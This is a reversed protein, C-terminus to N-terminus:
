DTLDMLFGYRGNNKSKTFEIIQVDSYDISPIENEIVIIQLDNQCKKLMKFLQTRMPSSVTESSQVKEKLSLIPSDVILFPLSYKGRNKLYLIIGLSNLTNLYARYGKGFSDKPQGNVIVDMTRKDFIATQFDEFGCQTLTDPWYINEFEIMNDPIHDKVKFFVNSDEENIIQSVKAVMQEAQNDLVSIETSIRIATQYKDLQEKLKDACPKLEQNILTEANKYDLMSEELHTELSTIESDISVMTDSLDKLQLNVRKYESQASLIYDTSDKVTVSSSCFPCNRTQPGPDNISSDVIFNLRELDSTYQSKLNQYRKKMITCEALQENLKSIKGLLAQNNQISTTIREQITALEQAIQDIETNFSTTASDKSGQKLEAQRKHILEIEEWIYSEIAERKAKAISLSENSSLGQFDEGTALYTLASITPTEATKQEPMLVSAKRIVREETILAVHLINRWSLKQTKFEQSSIITPATNMGLLKLFLSNLTRKGSSSYRGSEINPINTNVDVGTGKLKRTLILFDNNKRLKLTITDYGTTPPFPLTKSGFVYDICSVIYTKGTNSPGCIINLGDSFSVKSPTKNRGTVLLEQIRFM